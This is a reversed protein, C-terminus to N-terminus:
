RHSINCHGVEKGWSIVTDTRLHLRPIMFLSSCIFCALGPRAQSHTERRRESAGCLSIFHGTVAVRSSEGGRRLM